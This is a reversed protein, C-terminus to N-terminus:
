IWGADEIEKRREEFFGSPASWDVDLLAVENISMDWIADASPIQGRSAADEALKVLERRVRDFGRMATSRLQERAIIANQARKGLMGLDDSSTKHTPRNFSDTTLLKLLPSPDDGFRPRSVDSEYIGRHGHKALYLGWQRKFEPDDPLDGKELAPVVEQNDVVYQRLPQLDDYIQTSVTRTLKGLQELKGSRRLQVLPLSMSQTLNFMEHVLTTYMWQMTETLESFTYGPNQSRQILAKGTKRPM